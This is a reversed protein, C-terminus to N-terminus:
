KIVTYESQCTFDEELAPTIYIENEETVFVAEFDNRQEYIRAGEDLGTVFLATSLADALLGSKAIVTVSSLGSQAPFGTKPDIIHHYKKGNEEFYRQYSGATVVAANYVNVAAIYKSPDLPNQIGVSWKKTGNKKGLTQVNGGLSVIASSANHESMTKIVADSAFGKAVAGLDLSADKDITVNNGSVSIKSCDVSNLAEKIEEMDAVRYEGKGFGWLDMVPAITIDMAGGTEEGIHAATKILQASDSSVTYSKQTNLKYIDSEPDFRDFLKELRKIEAQAADIAGANDATIDMITDMAYITRTQMPKQCSTLLCALLLAALALRM